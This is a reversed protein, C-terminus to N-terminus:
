MYDVKGIQLALTKSILLVTAHQKYKYAGTSIYGFKLGMQASDPNRAVYRM